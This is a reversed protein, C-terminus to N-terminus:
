RDSWVVWKGTAWLDTQDKFAGIYKASSDFFGDSPPQAAAPDGPAGTTSGIPGSSAFRPSIPDFCKPIGPNAESNQNV